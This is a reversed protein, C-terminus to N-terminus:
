RRRRKGPWPLTGDLEALGFTEEEYRRRDARPPPAEEEEFWLLAITQDWHALHRADEYLVGCRDYDEFWLDPEVNEPGGAREGNRLRRALSGQPLEMHPPIWLRAERLAKSRSSYRIKGQESLVFACPGVAFAAFRSGTALTSAKFQGALRDVAELCCDCDDVLPKFLKHPLLLEAAFIDCLIETQPRRAYSWSAAASHDSPLDLVIHAIEHCATFRQREEAQHANVRIYYKGSREVSWGDEDPGLDADKGIRAGIAAAYAEVSVPYTTPGVRNILERAKLEVSLEDM